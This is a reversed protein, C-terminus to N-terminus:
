NKGWRLEYVSNETTIQVVKFRYTEERHTEVREPLLEWKTIGSTIHWSGNIWSTNLAPVGGRDLVKGIGHQYYVPGSPSYNTKYLAYRFGALHKRLGKIDLPDGKRARYPKLESLAKSLAAERRIAAVLENTSAEANMNDNDDIKGM